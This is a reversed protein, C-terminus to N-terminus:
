DGGPVVIQSIDAAELFLSEISALLALRAARLSPDEAMVLVEDFFRDVEPRLGALAEFAAASRGEELLGRVREALSGLREALALEAPEVLASRDLEGPQQGKLINRVRKFALALAEFDRGSEARRVAALGEVRGVLGPLDTWSSGLAAEVDDAAHELGLVFRIRDRLYDDLAGHVREVDFGKLGEYGVAASELLARLPLSLRRGALISVLGQAARRLAFPDKSGSPILGVGFCGVLTDLRDVVALLAGELGAPLADGQFRPLYHQEVAVCVPEAVRGEERLYLGGMVGQLSTFEKVMDTVQDAKCLAVAELLSAGDAAAAGPLDLLSEALARMRALKDAYTGLREHFLVRELDPAREGLPRELDKAWFFRADDLRALLVSSNNAAITGEPDEQGAVHLFCPLLADGQGLVAFFRQHDRMATRIVVAPLELYSAPFRGTV